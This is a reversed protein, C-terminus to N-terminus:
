KKTFISFFSFLLPTAAIYKETDKQTTQPLYLFSFLAAFGCHMKRHRETHDTTSLFLLFSRRLRLANKRHREIHDTTSLFLLFSRRLRLYKETDKQTTQPLYFFLSFLPSAAIYKETDKQTTQPLYLFSFLRDTATPTATVSAASPNKRSPTAHNIQTPIPAHLANPKRRPNKRRSPPMM